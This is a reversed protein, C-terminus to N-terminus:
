VHLLHEPRSYLLWGLNDWKFTDGLTFSTTERVLILQQGGRSDMPYKSHNERVLDLGMSSKQISGGNFRDQFRQSLFQNRILLTLNWSTRSSISAHAAGM